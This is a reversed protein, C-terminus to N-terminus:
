PGGLQRRTEIEDTVRLDYVWKGIIEAHQELWGILELHAPLKPSGERLARAGTRHRAALLRFGDSLHV